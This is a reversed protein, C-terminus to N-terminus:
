AVDAAPSLLRPSGAGRRRSLRAGTHKVVCGNHVAITPDILHSSLRPAARIDAIQPSPYQASAVSHRSNRSSRDYGLCRM